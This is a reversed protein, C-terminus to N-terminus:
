KKALAETRVRVIKESTAKSLLINISPFQLEPSHIKQEIWNLTNDLIFRDSCCIREILHNKVSLNFTEVENQLFSDVIKGFLFNSTTFTM